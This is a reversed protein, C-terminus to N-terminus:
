SIGECLRTVEYLIRSTPVHIRRQNCTGTELVLVDDVEQARVLDAELPQDVGQRAIRVREAGQADLLAISTELVVAVGGGELALMRHVVDEDRRGEWLIEPRVPRDSPAPRGLRVVRHGDTLLWADGGATRTSTSAKFDRMRYSNGKHLLVGERAGQLVALDAQPDVLVLARQEDPQQKGHVIPDLAIAQRAAGTAPRATSTGRSSADIDTAELGSVDWVRLAGATTLVSLRHAAASFFAARLPTLAAQWRYLERGSVYDIARVLGSSNVELVARTRPLEFVRIPVFGTRGLGYIRGDRVIETGGDSSIAAVLGGRVSVILDNVTAGNRSKVESRGALTDVLELAEGRQWFVTSEDIAVVRDVNERLLAATAGGTDDAEILFARRAADLAVFARETLHASDNWDCAQESDFRLSAPSGPKPELRRSVRSSTEIDLRTWECRRSTPNWGLAECSTGDCGVYSGPLPLAERLVDAQAGTRADYRTVTGTDDLVGYHADLAAGGLIRNGYNKLLTTRGSAPDVVVVDGYLTGLFLLSSQRVDRSAFFWDTLPEHAHSGTPVERVVGSRLQEFAVEPDPRGARDKWVGTAEEVLRIATERDGASLARASERALAQARARLADDRESRAYVAAAAAIVALASVGAVAAVRLRRLWVSRGLSSRVYESADHGLPVGAEALRRADAVKEPATALLSAPRGRRRWEAADAALLERAQLLSMESQLWSQLRPWASLLAEHSFAVASVGGSVDAVCLRRTVLADLLRSEPTDGPFEERRAYRRTAVGNPDIRVLLRLVRALADRGEGPQEAVCQEATAAISGPLGGFEHYAEFTLSSGRRREYLQDLAYELLPLSEPSASAERLIAQDLSVGDQSEWTLGAAVAPERIMEVLEDAQPPWLTFATGGKLLPVYEPTEEMRGVFDSRITAIVWIRGESALALLGRGFAPRTTDSLTSWCEELQDVCVVLRMRSAGLGRREAAQSLYGDLRAAAEDPAVQLREALAPVGYAEGLGPLAGVLGLALSGFVGASELGPAVDSPKLIAHAWAGIGEVARGELLPLVGARVLSSKGVGSMGQVLLFRVSGTSNEVAHLRKLVASLAQSRGFFVERHAAEFAQLGRYPSGDTWRPQPRGEGVQRDLWKRVHETLKREYEWPEGYLHHAVLAGHEDRLARRCFEELAEYQEIRARVDQRSVDVQPPTTRRYILLNPRGLRRYAALADQVEFETGTPPPVGPAPAFDPPLRTGLRSWLVSIVLDCQSPREIQSQFTDHAFLPEHEWLLVSLQVRDRYQEALRRLVRETLAREETVDGPSSVFVKLPNREMAM